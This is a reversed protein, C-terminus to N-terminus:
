RKKRKKSSAGSNIENKQLFDVLYRRTKEEAFPIFFISAILCAGMLFYVVTFNVVPMVSAILAVTFIFAYTLVSANERILLASNSIGLIRSKVLMRQLVFVSMFPNVLGLVGFITYILFDSTAFPLLIIGVGMLGCSIQVVIQMDYKENIKGALWSGVAYTVNFAATLMGAISYTAGKLFLDLSFVTKYVDVMSFLFYVAGYILLIKMVLKKTFSTHTRDKEHALFANSIADKNSSTSKKTKFYFILLPVVSIAYLVLAIIIVLTKNIDLLFGGVLLSIIVGLQEFVRTIGLSQANKNLSSYNYILENANSRFSTDLALFFCIGVVGLLINYDLVLIFVNYLTLTVIRLMLFIQPKSRIQNRLLYSIAFRILQQVILYVFAIYLQGTAKFIILPVFAGVLNNALNSLFKHFNLLKLQM